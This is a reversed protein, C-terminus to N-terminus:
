RCCNALLSGVVLDYDPYTGHDTRAIKTIYTNMAHAAATLTINKAQRHAYTPSNPHPRATPTRGTPSPGRSV